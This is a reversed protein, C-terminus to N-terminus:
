QKVLTSVAMGVPTNTFFLLSNTNATFQSPGQQAFPPPSGCTFAYTITAGTTTFTGNARNDVGGSTYIVEIANGGVTITVAGIEALVTGKPFQSSYVITSTLEYTGNAVTGGAAAPDADPSTEASVVDGLQAQANCATM